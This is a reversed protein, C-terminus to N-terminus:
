RRPKLAGAPVIQIRPPEAQAQEEPESLTLEGLGLAAEALYAQVNLMAFLTATTPGAPSMCDQFVKMLGRGAMDVNSAVKRQLEEAETANSM